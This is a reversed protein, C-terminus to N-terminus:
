SPVHKARFGIYIVDAQPIAVTEGTFVDVAAHQSMKTIDAFIYGPPGHQKIWEQKTPDNEVSFTHNVTPMDEGFIQGIRAWMQKFIPVIM